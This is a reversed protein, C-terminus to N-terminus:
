SKKSALTLIGFFGLSFLGALGALPGYSATKPLSKPEPAPAANTQPEPQAVPAPQAAPEASAMEVPAAAPAPEPKQVEASPQSAPAAQEKYETPVPVPRAAALQAVLKKPYPLERGYNDGPYFWARVAKPVGAPTEWYAFQTRGSPRLRYDPIALVTTELKSQDENYIRIVNRNTASDMLKWVYTGPQLVKNGTILPENLTVTTQKNWEDARLAPILGVILLAASVAAFFSARTTM